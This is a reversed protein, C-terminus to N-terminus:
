SGAVSRHSGAPLSRPLMERTPRTRDIARAAGVLVADLGWAGMTAIVAASRRTVALGSIAALSAGTLAVAFLADMVGLFPDARIAVLVALLVAAVPLWADLPDLARGSRRIAWGALLVATVLIPVGVGFASGDLALEALLGLACGALLVRRAVLRDHSRTPTM